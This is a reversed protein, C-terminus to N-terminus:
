SGSAPQQQEAIVKWRRGCGAREPPFLERPKHRLAPVTEIDYTKIGLRKVSPIIGTERRQRRSGPEGTNGLGTM